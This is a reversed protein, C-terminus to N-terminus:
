VFGTGDEIRVWFDLASQFGIRCELNAIWFGVFKSWGM